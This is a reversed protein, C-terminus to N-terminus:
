PPSADAIARMVPPQGHIRGKADEVWGVVRLREANAGEPILM